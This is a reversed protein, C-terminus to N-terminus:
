IHEFDPNLEFDAHDDDADLVVDHHDVFDLDDVVPDVHHVHLHDDHPLGTGVAPRGDGRGAQSQRCTGSEGILPPQRDRQQSGHCREGRRRL